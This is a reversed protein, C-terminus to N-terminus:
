VISIMGGTGDSVVVDRGFCGFASILSKVIIYQSLLVRFRLCFFCIVNM